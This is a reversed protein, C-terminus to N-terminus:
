WERRSVPWLANVGPKFRFGSVDRRFSNKGLDRNQVSWQVCDPFSKKMSRHEEFLGFENSARMFVRQCAIEATMPRQAEGTLRCAAEGYGAKLSCGRLRLCSTVYDVCVGSACSRSVLYTYSISRRTAAEHLEPYLQKLM